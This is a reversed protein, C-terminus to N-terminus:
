KVVALKKVVSFSGAQLRYFYVGSPVDSANFKVEYRGAPKEENVLTRIENGLIDFIKLTVRGQEALSYSITTTPNFPNPYNQSLSFNRDNATQQEHVASTSWYEDAGIDPLGNLRAEGDVDYAGIGDIQIGANIAPSGAALHMDPLSTDKIIPDIFVSHSDLGTGKQYMSWNWYWSRRWEWSSAGAGFPTYYLNHDIVMASDSSWYNVFLYKGTFGYFINNAIVNGKIKCQLMMEGYTSTTITNNNFFTNNIFKCNQTTGRNDDYGGIALGSVHNAYVFNNRVIISDATGGAIESAVQIGINCNHVKNREIIVNKAGDVYIGSAARTTGYAVNNYSDINYVLNGSIVGGVARDNVPAVGWYGIADIGINNNDHVINNTIRFNKVNGTCVLSESSGLKLSDLENGDIIIDYLSDVASTGRACIGHADTGSKTTGNHEIHHIHNNLIRIHKCTGNVRIGVPTYSKVTTRYNRVELGKIVIYNKDQIYIMGTNTSPVTLNTGDLVAREGPFNQITIYGNTESGSNPITVSEGYVGEHIFVTDGAQAATVAKQVTKFPLTSSGTNSDSGSPSVYYVNQSFLRTQVSLFLLAFLISKRM